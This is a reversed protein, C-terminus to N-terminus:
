FIGGPGADPAVDDAATADGGPDGWSEAGWEVPGAIWDPPPDAHDAYEPSASMDAADEALERHEHDLEHALRDLDPDEGEPETGHDPVAGPAGTFWAAADPSVTEVIAAQDQAPPAADQAPTGASGPFLAGGVAIATSLASAAIDRGHPGDSGM